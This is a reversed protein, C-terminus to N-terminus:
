DSTSPPLGANSKAEAVALWFSEATDSVGIFEFFEEKPLSNIWDGWQDDSMDDIVDALALIKPLLKKYAGEDRACGTDPTAIPSIPEIQDALAGQGSTRLLSIAKQISVNADELLRHASKTAVAQAKPPTKQM